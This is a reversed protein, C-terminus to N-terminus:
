EIFKLVRIKPEKPIEINFSFSINPEAFKIIKMGDINAKICDEGSSYGQETKGYQAHNYDVGVYVNSEDILVYFMRTEVVQPRQKKKNWYYTNKISFGKLDELNNTFKAYEIKINGVGSAIYTYYDEVSEFINYQWLNCDWKSEGNAMEVFCWLKTDTFSQTYSYAKIRFAVLDGNCITYYTKGLTINTPILPKYLHLAYGNSGPGGIQPVNEFQQLNTTIVLKKGMVMTEM